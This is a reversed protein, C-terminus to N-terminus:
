ALPAMAEVAIRFRTPLRSPKSPSISEGTRRVVEEKLRPVTWVVGEPTEEALIAKVVPLVVTAKTPPRGPKPKLRLADVGGRQFKMRWRRVCDPRIGLIRGIEPSTEGDATALITRAQDAESRNASRALEQLGLRQKETLVLKERVDM